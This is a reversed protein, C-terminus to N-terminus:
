KLDQSIQQLPDIAAFEECKFFNTKRSIDGKFLKCYNRIQEDMENQMIADIEWLSSKLARSKSPNKENELYPDSDFTPNMKYLKKRRHILRVCRPHRKILNAILSIAFMKDSSSVGQGHSVIVRALRKMFAAIVKSPLKPSRLSLDLLRLFRVKEQISITFVSLHPNHQPLLLGYLRTYYNPYDLGHKELLIFITRLGLIQIDLNKEDDLCNTLFDCLILPNEINHVITKPIMVLVKKVIENSMKRMLFHIFSNSFEKKCLEKTVPEEFLNEETINEINPFLSIIEFNEATSLDNTGL